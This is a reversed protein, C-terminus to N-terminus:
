FKADYRGNLLHVGGPGTTALCCGIRGTWKSHACAALAASEEHRVQVFRISGRRKRIAEMVGNIGDGPLGFITDVGWAMLCDILVDSGNRQRAM